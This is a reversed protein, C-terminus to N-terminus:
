YRSKRMMTNSAFIDETNEGPDSDDIRMPASKSRAVSKYASNRGVQPTQEQTGMKLDWYGEPTPQRADKKGKTQVHPFVVASANRTTHLRQFLSQQRLATTKQEVRALSAEIQQQAHEYKDEIIQNVREINKHVNDSTRYENCNDDIQMM